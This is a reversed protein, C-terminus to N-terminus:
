PQGRITIEVTNSTWEGSAVIRTLQDLYKGALNRVGDYLEGKSDRQALDIRVIARLTYEGPERPLLWDAGNLDLRWGWVNGPGLVVIEEESLGPARKYRGHTAEYSPELRLTKSGSRAEFELVALPKGPYPLPTLVRPIAM